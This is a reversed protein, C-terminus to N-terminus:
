STPMVEVPCHSLVPLSRPGGQLSLLPRPSEEITDGAPYRQASNCPFVTSLTAGGDLSPCTRMAAPSIPCDLAGWHWSSGM